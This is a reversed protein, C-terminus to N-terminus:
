TELHHSPSLKGLYGFLNIVPTKMYLIGNESHIEGELIVSSHTMQSILSRMSHLGGHFLRRGKECVARGRVLFLQEFLARRFGFRLRFMCSRCSAADEDAM